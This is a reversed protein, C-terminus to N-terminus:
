QPKQRVGAFNFSFGTGPAGGGGAGGSGPAVFTPTPPPAPPNSGDPPPTDESKFAGPDSQRYQDLFDKFGVLQEGDVKFEKAQADAFFAKKAGESTFQLGTTSEKLVHAYAQDALQKEMAAKESEYRTQLGTLQEQLGPLKTADAQAAEMAAKLTAMDADRASIADTATKTAVKAEGLLSEHKEKSVYGGDALNALKVTKEKGKLAEAVQGYLTDGLHEKLFEM